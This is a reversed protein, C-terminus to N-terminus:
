QREEVFNRIYRAAARADPGASNCGGVAFLMKAEALSLAFELMASEMGNTVFALYEKRGPVTGFKWEWTDPHIHAWWGLACSPSGCRGYYNQDYCPVTDLIAALEWLKINGAIRAPIIHPYNPNM